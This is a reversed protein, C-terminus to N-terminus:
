FLLHNRYFSLTHDLVTELQPTSGVWPHRAGFTHNGGQIVHLAARTQEAWAFIAQADEVPVAEDADGHVICLPKSLAQVARQIGLKGHLHAVLDEHLQWGLYMVQGTRSNLIELQGDAKWRQLIHDPYRAFTSVAAWTCVCRIAPAAEAALLAIGGGRSHGLLGMAVGPAAGFLKGHAYRDIIELAEELELSFTNAKFKDLETFDDEVEGIGNHSFNMAMMRLKHAAFQEGVYPAFGWDKFGKFGHLYVVCPSDDPLESGYLSLGIVHGRTSHYSFDRKM